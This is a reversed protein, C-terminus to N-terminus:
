EISNANLCLTTHDAYQVIRGQQVSSSVDKVYILFLLPSLISGQPVGYKLIEQKSQADNM